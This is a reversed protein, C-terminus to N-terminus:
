LNCLKEKNPPNHESETDTYHLVNLFKENTLEVVDKVLVYHESEIKELLINLHYRMHHMDACIIKM